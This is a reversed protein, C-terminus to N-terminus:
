RQRKFVQKVSSITSDSYSYPAVMINAPKVPIQAVVDRPWDSTIEAAHVTLSGKTTVILDLGSDPVGFYYLMIANPAIKAKDLIENGVMIETLKEDSNLSIIMIDGRYGPRLTFHTKDDFQRESNISIKEVSSLPAAALTIAGTRRPVISQSEIEETNGTILLSSWDDTERLRTGYHNVGDEKGDILYFAKTPKNHRDNFGTALGAYLIFMLGLISSVSGVSNHSNRTLHLYIPILMVLLLGFPVAIVSPLSIGVASYGMEAYYTLWLAALLGLISVERLGAKSKKALILGAVLFIFPLLFLHSGAPALFQIVLGALLYMDLSALLREDHNVPNRLMMFAGATSFAIVAAPIWSPEFILLLSSLLGGGIVWVLTFGRAMMRFWAIGFGLGILSFGLLQANALAFLRRGEVYDDSRGGIMLFLLDIIMALGVLFLLVAVSSKLMGKLSLQRSSIKDKAFWVLLGVAVGAVLWSGWLPYSVMFLTLFDFFVVESTDKLPLELNGMVRTMALAQDGMHQLTTASLNEPSDGETHYDYFGDIFAFNMGPINDALSISMDTDNPMKRYITVTLSNAFPRDVTNAYAKILKNNATSTQFMSVPGRSGRAEFNLVLGVDKAWPHKNVFTDAGNLGLEESDTIVIIIDNKPTNGTNLYARIGEIITVVGSGADSAGLSAQPASDYHSLLVLARSSNSGPIKAIINKPKSLNGFGTLSFAEQIETQLGLAELEAVIYEQVRQHEESGVYHPAKSIEKLHVLARETSFENEATNLDSIKSPMMASFSWYVAVILLLLAIAKKIM